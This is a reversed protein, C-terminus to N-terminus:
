DFRYLNKGTDKLRDIANALLRVCGLFASTSPCRQQHRNAAGKEGTVAFLPATTANLLDLNESPPPQLPPLHLPSPLQGSTPSLAGQDLLSSTSRRGCGPNANNGSGGDRNIKRDNWVSITIVDNQTVLLDFHQNWKPDVTNKAVETFHFQNQMSLHPGVNRSGVEVSVKAFPDPLRFIDRKALSRACLLTVRIKQVHLQHHQLQVNSM